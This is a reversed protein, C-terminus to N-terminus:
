RRPLHQEASGTERRSLLQEDVRSGAADAM